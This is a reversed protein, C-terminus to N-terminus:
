FEDSVYAIVMDVVAKCLEKKGDVGNELDEFSYKFVEHGETDLFVVDGEICDICCHFVKEVGYEHSFSGDREIVDYELEAYFGHVRPEGYKSGNILMEIDIKM